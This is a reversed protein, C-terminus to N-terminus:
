YTETARDGKNGHPKLPGFGGVCVGNRWRIEYRKHRRGLGVFAPVMLAGVVLAAVAPGTNEKGLQDIAVILFATLILVAPLLMSRCFRSLTRFRTIMLDYFGPDSRGFCRLLCGAFNRSEPECYKDNELCDCNKLLADKEQPPMPRYLWQSFLYGVPFILQGILYPVVLFLLTWTAGRLYGEGSFTDVYSKLGGFNLKFSESIVVAFFIAVLGPVYYALFDLLGLAMYTRRGSTSDEM